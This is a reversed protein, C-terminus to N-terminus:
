FLCGVLSSVKLSALDKLAPEVARARQFATEFLGAAWMVARSHAMLRLPEIVAGVRRKSAAFFLRQIPGAQADSVGEMRPM